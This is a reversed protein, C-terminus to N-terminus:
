LNEDSQKVELDELRRASTTPDPFSVSGFTLDFDTKALNTTGRRYYFEKDPITM